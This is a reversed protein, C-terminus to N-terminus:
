GAGAYAATVRNIYDAHFPMAEAAREILDAMRDLRATMEDPDFRATMPDCGHPEIGQGLMVALWSAPSFLDDKEKLIRGTEEFREIKVRLADSREITQCYRWFPTDARETATYHLVLFDRIREYEARTNDNYTAIDIPSFRKDPFLSMLRALGTQVLHISTSELPEMFGAALGLAVVNKEWTKRRMGTTFRLHNPDALPRGEVTDSLTRYADEDSTFASCYVHGNGTRHQLPIRWQWGAERATARTYPAPPGVMECPLAIARDCPLWERWDDYGAGLAGEILVGKFGSCDIFFDGEVSRGDDLVLGGVHGTLGDLRVHDIRGEIRKVGRAEAYRRLLAAYRGADFQYAHHIGSLVSRPDDTPAPMFRGLSAARAMLSFDFLSRAYGRARAALWHHHLPLTEIDRGFNGFPHLYHDGKARWDVFEIGLKFTGKTEAIFEDEPIGLMKNFNIIPPITAEGVGVTGIADSEILTISMQQADLLHALTAAAMWGATGGGVIVINQIRLTDAPQM